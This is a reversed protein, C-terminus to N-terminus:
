VPELYKLPGAWNNFLQWRAECGRKRWGGSSVKTGGYCTRANGKLCRIDKHKRRSREYADDRLVWTFHLEVGM